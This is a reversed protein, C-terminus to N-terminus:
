NGEKATLRTYHFAKLGYIDQGSADMLTISASLLRDSEPAIVISVHYTSLASECERFNEDLYIFCSAGTEINKPYYAAFSQYTGDGNEFVSAINNCVTVAEHLQATKKTINHAKIFFQLGVILLLMFLVISILLELLFLNKKTHNMRTM